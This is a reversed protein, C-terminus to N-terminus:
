LGDENGPVVQDTRDWRYRREFVLKRRADLVTRQTVRGVTDYRTEQSLM